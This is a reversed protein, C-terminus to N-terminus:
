VTIDLLSGESSPTEQEKKKRDEKNGADKRPRREKDGKIEIKDGKALEKVKRKEQKKQTETEQAAAQQNLELNQKKVNHIEKIANGQGLIANMNGTGAM